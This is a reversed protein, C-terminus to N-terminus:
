SRSQALLWAKLVPWSRVVVALARGVTAQDAGVNQLGRQVTLTEPIKGLNSGGCSPREEGPAMPLTTRLGVPSEQIADKEEKSSGGRCFQTHPQRPM